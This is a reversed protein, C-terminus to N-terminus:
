TEPVVDSPYTLIGFTLHRTHLVSFERSFTVSPRKVMPSLTVIALSMSFSGAYVVSTLTFCDHWATKRFGM